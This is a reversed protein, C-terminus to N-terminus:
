DQKFQQELSDLLQAAEILKDLPNNEGAFYRYDAPMIDLIDLVTNYKETLARPTIQYITALEHKKVDIFNVKVIAYTVAAAWLEPKPTRFPRRGYCLKFELWLHLGKGILPVPFEMKKMTEILLAEVDDLAKSFLWEYREAIGQETEVHLYHGLQEMVEDFQSNRAYAKVLNLRYEPNKPSAKVAKSFREIAVDLKWGTYAAEGEQNFQIGKEKATEGSMILPNYRRPAPADFPRKRKEFHSFPAYNRKAFCLLLLYIQQLGDM